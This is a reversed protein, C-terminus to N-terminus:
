SKLVAGKWEEEFHYGFTVVCIMEIYYKTKVITDYINHNLLQTLYDARNKDMLIYRIATMGNMVKERIFNHEMAVHKTRSKNLHCKFLTIEAQNNHWVLASKGIPEKLELSKLLEKVQVVASKYAAVPMYETDM